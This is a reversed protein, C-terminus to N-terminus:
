VGTEALSADAKSGPLRMKLLQMQRLRELHLWGPKCYQSTSEMVVERVPHQQLWSV